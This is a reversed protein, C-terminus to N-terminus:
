LVRGKLVWPDICFHLCFSQLFLFDYILELSNVDELCLLTSVCIFECMHVWLTQPLMSLAQVPEFWFFFIDASIPLFSLIKGSVLFTNAISVQQSLLFWNDTIYHQQTYWGCELSPRICLFLRLVSVM